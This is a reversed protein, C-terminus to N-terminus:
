QFRDPPISFFEIIARTRLVDFEHVRKFDDISMGLVDTIVQDTMIKNRWRKDNTVGLARKLEAKTITVPVQM